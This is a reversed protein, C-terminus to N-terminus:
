AAHSAPWPEIKALEDGIQDKTMARDYDDQLGTWFGESTGFFKALRLGTDATISRRRALIESVRTQAIGISKALRYPTIEMPKLFEELLIEGPHPYPVIRM